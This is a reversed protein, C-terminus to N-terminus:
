SYGGQQKGRFFSTSGRKSLSKATNHSLNKTLGRSLEAQKSALTPFDDGFPSTKANPLPLEALNIRSRNIAALVRLRRLISLQANASGVLCLAQELALKLEEVSPASNNELCDHLGCLPGTANMFACQVVFMEKDREQVFRKTNSPVQNLLQQDLTPATLAEM